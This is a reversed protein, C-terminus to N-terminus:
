SVRVHTGDVHVGVNMCVFSSLWVCLQLFDMCKRLSLFKWHSLSSTLYLWICQTKIDLRWLGCFCNWIATDVTWLPFKLCTLAAQVQIGFPMCVIGGTANSGHLPVGSVMPSLCSYRARRGNLLMGLAIYIDKWCSSWSTTKQRQSLASTIYLLPAKSSSALLYSSRLEVQEWYWASFSIYDGVGNLTWAAAKRVWVLM